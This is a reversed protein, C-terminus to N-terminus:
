YIKDACFLKIPKWNKVDLLSINENRSKAKNKEVGNM